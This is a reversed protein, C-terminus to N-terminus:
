QFRINYRNKVFDTLYNLSNFIYYIFVSNLINVYTNWIFAGLQEIDLATQFQNSNLPFTSSQMQFQLFHYGCGM